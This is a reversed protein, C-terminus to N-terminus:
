ETFYLDSIDSVLDLNETGVPTVGIYYFTKDEYEMHETDEDPKSEMREIYEDKTVYEHCDVMWFQGSFIPRYFTDKEMNEYLAGKIITQLNKMHKM